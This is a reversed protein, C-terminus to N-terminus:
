ECRLPDTDGGRVTDDELIGRGTDTRAEGGAHLNDADVAAGDDMLIEGPAEDGDM